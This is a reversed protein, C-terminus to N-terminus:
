VSVDIGGGKGPEKAPSPLQEIMASTNAALVKSDDMAMSLVSVGLQQMNQSQAMSVSLNAISMPDM